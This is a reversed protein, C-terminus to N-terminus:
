SIVMCESFESTSTPAGKTALPTATATIVSSAPLADRVLTGAARGIADTTVTTSGLYLLGEGFGTPDCASSWYFEIRMETLPLSDLTWTVTTSIPTRVATTLSPANQLDNAGTDADPAPDDVNSGDPGLDIGLGDNLLISNRLIANDTGDEVEVGDQGNHAIVNLGAATNPDGVKNDDGEIHIGSESNGLDLTATLNTGIRNGVVRNGSSLSSIDIGDGANAAIVNAAGPDTGGIANDNGWVINIGDDYGDLAEGNPMAVTGSVDVGIKNGQIVNGDAPDDVYEQALEIGFWDNGSVVNGDGPNTGGFQNRKGGAIFVGEGNPIATTGALDTGILNGQLVNEDGSIRVGVFWGSILNRTVTNADAEGIRVGYGGGSLNTTGAADTGLRNGTIANGRGAAVFVGWESAVVNQDKPTGGIHNEDGDIEIGRGGSGAVAAAGPVDTGIHSATVTNRDGTIRVDVPPVTTSQAGNVVLGTLLSDDTQVDLGVAANSANIEVRLIAATTTTPRVAGAQTYGDITVPDTIAPLATRPTIRRPGIGPIAFAITDHGSTGNAKDIATRLSGNGSDNTNTVKIPSGAASATGIGAGTITTAMVSALAAARLLRRLAEKSM